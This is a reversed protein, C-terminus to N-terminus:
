NKKTTLNRKSHKKKSHKKKSHKKKSHKKKSHNKKSHNKYKRTKRNGGGSLGATESFTEGCNASVIVSYLQKLKGFLYQAQQDNTATNQVHIVSMLENKLFLENRTICGLSGM